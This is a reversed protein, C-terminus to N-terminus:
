TKLRQVRQHEYIGKFSGSYIESPTMFSLMNNLYKNGRDLEKGLNDRLYRCFFRDMSYYRFPGRAVPIFVPFFRNKKACKVFTYYVFFYGIDRIFVGGKNRIINDAVKKQFASIVEEVELRNLKGRPNDKKYIEYVERPRARSKRILKGANPLLKGRLNTFM